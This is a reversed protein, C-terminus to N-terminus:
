AIVSLALPIAKDPEIRATAHGTDRGLGHLRAYLDVSVFITLFYLIAPLAAATAITLYPINLLEAMLFAGAGMIPPMIQGGASASAEVGAAFAKPYGARQMTPVDGLRSGNRERRCVGVRHRVTRVHRGRDEGSRRARTGGAQGGVARVGRGCGHGHAARRLDRVDAIVGTGIDAMFGFIGGTSAYLTSVVTDISARPPQWLGSMLRNGAIYYGLGAVTLIPLAWGLLRQTGVLIAAMMAFAVVIDFREMDNMVDMFRANNIVAHLGGYFGVVALLGSAIAWARSRAHLSQLWFGLALGGAIFMGRQVLPDFAGRVSTWVHLLAFAACAVAFANAMARGGAGAGSAPERVM